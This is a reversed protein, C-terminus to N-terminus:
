FFLFERVRGARWCDIRKEPHDPEASEGAIQKLLEEASKIREKLLTENQPNYIIM